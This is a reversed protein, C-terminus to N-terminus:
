AFWVSQFRPACLNALLTLNPTDSVFGIVCRQSIQHIGLEPLRKSLMPTIAGRRRRVALVEAGAALRLASTVDIRLVAGLRPAGEVGVDGVLVRREAGFHDINPHAIGGVHEVTQQVMFRVQPDLLVVGVRRTKGVVDKAQHWENAEAKRWADSVQAFGLQKHRWSVSNIVPEFWHEATLPQLDLLDTGVPIFDQPQGCGDLLARHRGGQHQALQATLLLQRKLCDLVLVLALAPEALLAFARLKM